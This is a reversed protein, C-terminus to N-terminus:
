YHSTSENAYYHIYMKIHLVVFGTYIHIHKTTATATAFYHFYVDPLRRVFIEMAM